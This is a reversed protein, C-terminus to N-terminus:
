DHPWTELRFAVDPEAGDRDEPRIRGIEDLLGNLLPRLAKVEENSLELAVLERAMRHITGVTLPGEPPDPMTFGPNGLHANVENDPVEGSEGIFANSVPRM